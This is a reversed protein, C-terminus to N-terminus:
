GELTKIRNELDTNKDSLEQIAKILIPIFASTKITKRVLADQTIKDEEDKIADVLTHDSVLSPFVSEVEQAILGIYKIKSKEDSHIIQNTESDTKRWNFNRVKLKNIDELKSTCDVINEKLRQDSNISVTDATMDGNSHVQFRTAGTDLCKIFDDGTGDPAGGSYIIELGQPNDADTNELRCTFVSDGDEKVHLKADVVSDSQTGIRVDGAHMYLWADSEEQGSGITFSDDTINGGDYPQGMYMYTTYSTGSGKLWTIGNQNNRYDTNDPGRFQIGTRGHNNTTELIIQAQDSIDSGTINESRRIHLSTLPFDTNNVSGIGVGDAGSDVFLMHTKNNSEVRFDNTAHSDENLVVGASGVTIAVDNTSHISTTVASEGKNIYVTDASGDVFLAEDENNTEVRFDVTSIGDDNIVVETATVSIAEGDVNHITTLFATEGKNIDITNNGADVFFAEDEGSTEIRFDVDAGDENIAIYDQGGERLVIFEVGGAYFELKDSSPHTIYTDGGGDFYIKKASDITLDSGLVQVKTNGEDLKLINLDGVEFDLVDTGSEHIYTDGGGDFYVKHTAGVSISTTALSLSFTTGANGDTLAVLSTSNGGGSPLALLQDYTSAITSGTLSAM